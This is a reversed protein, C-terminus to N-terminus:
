CKSFRGMYFVDIKKSSFFDINKINNSLVRGRACALITGDLRNWPTGVMGTIYIM